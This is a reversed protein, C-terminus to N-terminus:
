HQRSKAISESDIALMNLAIRYDDVTFLSSLHEHAGGVHFNTKFSQSLLKTNLLAITLALISIKFIKRSM